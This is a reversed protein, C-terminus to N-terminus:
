LYDKNAAKSQEQMMRLSVDFDKLHSENLKRLTEDLDLDFQKLATLGNALREDVYYYDKPSAKMQLYGQLIDYFHQMSSEHLATLEAQNDAEQIKAKINKDDKQVNAFLEKVEPAHQDIMKDFVMEKSATSDVQLQELQLMTDVRVDDAKHNIRQFVDRPLQDKLNLTESKIYDLKPLLQSSVMQFNSYDNEMLYRKLLNHQSDAIRVTDKLDQIRKAMKQGQLRKQTKTVNRFGLGLGVASVFTLFDPLVESLSGIIMIYAILWVWMPMKPIYQVINEYHRKNM